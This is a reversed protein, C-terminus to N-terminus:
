YIRSEMLQEQYPGVINFAVKEFPINVVPLPQLPAKAGTNRSGCQCGGCTECYSKM